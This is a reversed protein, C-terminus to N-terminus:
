QQERLYLPPPTDEDQTQIAPNASHKDNDQADIEKDSDCTECEIDDESISAAQEIM